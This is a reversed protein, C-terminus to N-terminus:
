PGFDTCPNGVGSASRGLVCAAAALIRVSFKRRVFGAGLESGGLGGFGIVHGVARCGSLGVVV